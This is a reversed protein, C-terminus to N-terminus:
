HRLGQGTLQPLAPAPAPPFVGCRSSVLPGTLRSRTGAPRQMRLLGAMNRAEKIRRRFSAPSESTEGWTQFRLICCQGSRSWSLRVVRGSPAVTRCQFATPICSQGSRSWSLRVVRGSPAVTRCVSHPHIGPPAASSTGTQRTRPVALTIAISFFFFFYARYYHSGSNVSLKSCEM